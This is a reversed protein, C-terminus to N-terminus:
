VKFGKPNKKYWAVGKNVEEIWFANIAAESLSPLIQLEHMWEFFIESPRNDALGVVLATALFGGERYSAMSIFALFDGLIAGDLGRWEHTDIQFPEGNNVSPLTFTVGAVLNSYSILNTGLRGTRAIREALEVCAEYDEPAYTCEIEDLKELVEKRKM